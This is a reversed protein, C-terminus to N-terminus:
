GAFLPFPNVLLAVVLLRSRSVYWGSKGGAKKVMGAFMQHQMLLEEVENVSTGSGRAIRLIRKNPERPKMDEEPNVAKEKGNESPAPNKSTSPQPDRFLSGDSDLEETTMSDFIFAVRKMKKSAEEENGGMMESMGPIMSTLKSLPGMGMITALQDKLDRVTFEGKEFKKMLNEQREPNAMAM